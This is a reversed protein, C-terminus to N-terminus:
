REGNPGGLKTLNRLYELKTRFHAYSGVRVIAYSLVVLGIGGLVYWAITAM